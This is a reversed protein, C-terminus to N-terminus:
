GYRIKLLIIIMGLTFSVINTLIVPLSNISVGYLVWLVLGACLTVFMGLSVDKTHKSKWAKVLQPVLSFTTLTGAMFGTISGGEM